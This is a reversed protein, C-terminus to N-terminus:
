GICVADSGLNGIAEDNTPFVSLVRGLRTTELLETIRSSLHTLYIRGGNRSVRKRASLLGALGGSNIYGLQHCDVVVHKIGTEIMDGICDFFYDRDMETFRGRVEVLAASDSLPKTVFDIM